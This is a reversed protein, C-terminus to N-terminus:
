PTDGTLDPHHATGPRAVPLPLQIPGIGPLHAPFWGDVPGFADTLLREFEAPDHGPCRFGTRHNRAKVYHPGHRHRGPCRQPM